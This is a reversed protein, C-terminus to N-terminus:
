KNNLKRIRRKLEDKDRLGEEIQIEYAKKLLEGMKPGPEVLDMIDRGHLVPEEAKHEVMADKARTIFENIEDLLEKPAEKGKSARGLRDAKAVLTLMAINTEPALKNALRKYSSPKAKGLVLNLPQMHHKVLKKVTDTLEKNRTIRKLLKQTLPVGAEAHGLSKIVGEIEETTEPKGLDHCLAAYLLILRDKDPLDKGLDAAVDLSQMTHEFVDGEPHYDSRQPVNILAAIEPFLDKLRSIQVLWRIGLSPKESKLLMKAFEDEIRETSVGKLDITKCLDTLEKDPQMGFRAMFQMVRYFRLPDDLFLKKDVARLSKNELDKQGGFPDLFEYSDLDIGMANITLDRRRFADEINMDPDIVVEPKRGKSDKRPLSWDADIGDVRLVGFQKGVLRVHGFQKLLEELQEISLGHIEIDLDKIEKGLLLDRVAGGVLLVRGGAQIIADVIAPITSYNQTIISQLKQQLEKTIKM